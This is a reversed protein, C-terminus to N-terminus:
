RVAIKKVVNGVKVIYLGKSLSVSYENTGAKADITAVNVGLVSYVNLKDAEPLNSVQLKGDVFKIDVIASTEVAMWDDTSHINAVAFVQGVFLLGVVMLFVKHLYRAM